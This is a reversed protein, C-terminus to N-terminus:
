SSVMLFPYTQWTVRHSEKLLVDNLSVHEYPHSFSIGDFQGRHTPIISDARKEGLSPCQDYKQVVENM